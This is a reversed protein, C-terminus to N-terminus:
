EDNPSLEEWERTADSSASENDSRIPEDRGPELPDSSREPEVDPSEVESIADETEDGLDDVVDGRTAGDLLDSPTGVALDDAEIMTELTSVVEAFADREAESSLSTFALTTFGGQTATWELLTTAEDADPDTVVACRHPDAPYGQSVGWGAFALDYYERATRYADATYQSGPVALVRPGDDFGYETLWETPSAIAAEMTEGTASFSTGRAGYSGITWGAASLTELASLSLRDDEGIRDTPVFATPQIDADADELISLAESYHSAHGGYLHLCVTGTEVTPVFYFDDVLLNGGDEGIWSVIQLVEVRSLDPDGSVRSLGFNDRVFPMGARVQRSFEVYHGDSDQLQLRVRADRDAAMAVGPAVGRVDIPEDLERRVRVQGDDSRPELLASQSGTAAYATTATISGIDQYAEWPELSEFDDFTGVLRENRHDDDSSDPHSQGSVRPSGISVGAVSAITTLYARRDM